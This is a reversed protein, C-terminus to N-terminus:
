DHHNLTSRFIIIAARGFGYTTVILSTYLYVDFVSNGVSDPAFTESLPDTSPFIAFILFLSSNTFAGVVMAWRAHWPLPVGTAFFGLILASMLLFDIHAQLVRKPSGSFIEKLFGIDNYIGVLSWALILAMLIWLCAGRLMVINGNNNNNHVM